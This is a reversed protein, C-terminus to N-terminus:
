AAADRRAIHEDVKRMAAVTDRAYGIVYTLGDYGTTTIRNNLRADARPAGNDIIRFNRYELSM